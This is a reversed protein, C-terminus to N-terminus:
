KVTGSIPISVSGSNAGYTYSFGVTASQAGTAGSKPAFEMTITCSGPKAALTTTCTNATKTFATPDSGGISTTGLSVSVTAPNSIKIAKPKGTGGAAVPSFTEKSPAKLTVEVGIGSLSVAPSTGNYSVKISGGTVANPTAPSFEVEFLCKKKVAVSQGSCTNGVSAIAFPATATVSGIVAEAPGKNTLTVKKAKSTGTADVIGFNITAPAASLTTPSSVATPTATPTTTATATATSTATASATPTPTAGPQLAIRLPDGLETLPGSITASPPEDLLGTSSGLPPYVFVSDSEESQNAVYINLSSDLAIGFPQNLATSIGNITATPKEDLTGTSSGVPPFVFVSMAALDTVYINGSFDLTIGAPSLLGTAGGSIIAIPPENLLGSSSGLPPFVFVSAAYSNNGNSGAVYIKGSSDVAIGIPFAIDTKSGSITAVPAVNPYGPQSPLSAQPPYVFVSAPIAPVVVPDGFDAVYIKGSSDVAVGTPSELGTAAGNISATAAANGNSGLPYVFVSPPTDNTVYINGSFDVAIGYPDFLGTTMAASITTDSPAENLPGTSSGLPPYVLVSAPTDNAVYINASSDLAIGWPQNLGTSSGSITATPSENLTGTSSGLPPYVTLSSNGQDVVYINSSSDLAIGWPKNLTTSSGSITATPALNPYGPQSPLSALPPFVLVSDAASDTVYIKGSSDLAIGTPNDLGTSGGSITATPGEDLTGTSSGLPPYVFVNAPTVPIHEPDGFDAVYINASSDLAIGQPFDMGTADGSIIATPSENLTGTSSGLPPYVFVGPAAQDTVYINGSSDLAIGAPSQLGTNSGGIIAIPAADAKSGKAYITVTHTCRNTAYINGSADIAVFDPESLGTPTPPLPSADGTSAAAYATVADSCGDTVFLAAPPTQSYARGSFRHLGATALAAVGLIAIVGIRVKGAYKNM